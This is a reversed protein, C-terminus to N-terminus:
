NSPAPIASMPYDVILANEPLALDVKKSTESVQTEISMDMKMMDKMDISFQGEGSKQDGSLKFTGKVDDLSVTGDLDYHELKGAKDKISVDLKFSGGDLFSDIDSKLADEPVGEKLVTKAAAELIDVKGIKLTYTNTNGSTQTRFADDGVLEKMFTYATKMDQYTATDADPLMTVYNELIGSLGSESYKMESIAKLDIGMQNYVDYFNMKYWTNKGEEPNMLSFINSNMYTEGTEGNMKINMKTNKYADLLPEALAREEESLTTLMEDFNFVMNMAMEANLKQQIGSMDGKLSVNLPTTDQYTTMDMNFDSNTKYAKELDLDSSMLKKMISFDEDANAFLTDPDIVIVTKNAADWRVLCDMSEGIFLVPVYTKSDARDIYPVVDMTKTSTTGDETITLEKKGITFSFEKEPTKASVTKTAADYTIEAGMAELIVRFPVVIRGNVNKIAGDFDLNSGNYQVKYATSDAAFATLTGSLIMTIALAVVLMTKLIKKMSDGKERETSQCVM